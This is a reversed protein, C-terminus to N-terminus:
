VPTLLYDLASEVAQETLPQELCRASIGKLSRKPGVILCRTSQMHDLTQFFIPETVIRTEVAANLPSEILVPKAGRANLLDAFLDAIQQDKFCISVTIQDCSNAITRNPGPPQEKM